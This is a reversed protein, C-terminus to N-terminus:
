TQCVHIKMRLEPIGPSKHINFLIQYAVQLVLPMQLSGIKHSDSMILFFNTVKCIIYLISGRLVLLFFVLDNSLLKWLVELM